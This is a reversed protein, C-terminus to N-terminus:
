SMLPIVWEPEIRIFRRQGIEPIQDISVAFHLEIDQDTKVKVRYVDGAFSANTVQVPVGDDAFKIGQPHILIGSADASLLDPLMASLVDFKSRDYVNNLGLFTAVFITRPKRYVIEPTGIQEIKGKNMVAVRDGVVFAEQQDHTVYLTTVHTSKLITRLETVLRDKLTKDLAGLPEDLMLLRPNPALSRGLAVRQREGGSLQTVDRDQFGHLGVLELIEAVRADRDDSSFKKMRLGFAINEVVNMHPFLAYEQFMLGFDRQHVPTIMMSDGNIRVDGDQAQELGAISRLLTSKGCGSPGVICLIEGQEVSLDVDQVAITEGFSVTLAEIELM